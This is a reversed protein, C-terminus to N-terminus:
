LEGSGCFKKQVYQYGAYGLGIGALIMFKLYHLGDDKALWDWFPQLRSRKTVAKSATRISSEIHPPLARPGDNQSIPETM